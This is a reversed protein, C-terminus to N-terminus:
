SGSRICRLSSGYNRGDNSSPLVSSANVYLIRMRYTSNWTSSWFYGGSGLDNASGNGFYGSLPTSLANRFNAQDASYATNYLYYYEGSGSTTTPMHWGAPCIDADIDYLTGSKPDSSPSGTYSTGNGWCYSGASAACYNYYIGIKGSGNGYTVSAVTDPNWNDNNANKIAILPASYSYSSTWYSVGATPYQDSTTGTNVGKLYNLYTDSANTNSSTINNQSAVLDLRLNDLMWLNGDKLKSICYTEKDRFDKIYYPQDEVMAALISSENTSNIEQMYNVSPVKTQCNVPADPNPVFNTVATFTVSTSYTGSSKTTDAKAGFTITTTDSSPANTAKIAHNPAYNSETSQYALVPCYNSACNYGGTESSKDLGGTYGWYNVPFSGSAYSQSLTPITENTAANTLSNSYGSTANLQLTYGTRNNTETTVTTNTTCLTNLSVCSITSIQPATINIVPDINLNVETDSSASSDAYVSSSNGVSLSSLAIFFVALVTFASIPIILFNNGNGILNKLKNTKNM